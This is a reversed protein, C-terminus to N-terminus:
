GRFFYKSLGGGDSATKTNQKGDEKKGGGRFLGWSRSPEEDVSTGGDEYMNCILFEEYEEKLMEEIRSFMESRWGANREDFKLHGGGCEKTLNTIMNSAWKINYGMPNNWMRATMSKLTDEDTTLVITHKIAKVSFLNLVTKVRRLDEETFDNNQLVLLIANPGPDSLSVCERVGQKIEHQSLHPQLLHPTNIVILHKKEVTARSIQSHQQVDSSAADRYHGATGLITNRVRSNESENKGLLVIRLDNV